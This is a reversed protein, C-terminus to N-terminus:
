SKGVLSKPSEDNMITVKFTQDAAKHYVVVGEPGMFGPAAISGFQALDNVCQAVTEQSFPGNFMVPVVDIDLGAAQASLIGPQLKVDLRLSLDWVDAVNGEYLVGEPLEEYWRKVNFLSFRKKGINYKCQIGQGWWEGYHRGAGLTKVLLEANDWVWRAFGFNDDGPSIWRKRSGARVLYDGQSTQVRMDQSTMAGDGVQRVSIQANSGDVKKTVIMSRNLRPISDWAKFETLDQENSMNSLGESYSSMKKTFALCNTIAVSM